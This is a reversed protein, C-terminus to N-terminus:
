GSIFAALAIPTDAGTMPMGHGGAVVRPELQGITAISAMALSWDWSTYRPPGSLGSRGLVLGPVSNLRMTVLADGTIAVRDAPRFLSVHGPTHGPTPVCVWDPLGPVGGEPELPRVVRALTSKAILAERRQRGIARMIPLVLWRDVPGASARMAAFDGSAIALEAPHVYVTTGWREALERASGAHDPHAHTLVIAAPPTEAGFLAEAADIIRRGDSSWGTDVLVWSAGSPVLYVMTQTRGHPGLGFVGPAVSWPVDRSGEDPMTAEQAL